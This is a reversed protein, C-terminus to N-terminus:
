NIKEGGKKLEVTSSIGVVIAAEVIAAEVVAIVAASFVVDAIFVLVDAKVVVVDAIVIAATVLAPPFLLPTSVGPFISRPIGLVTSSMSPQPGFHMSLATSPVEMATTKSQPDPIM